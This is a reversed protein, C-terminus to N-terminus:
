ASASARYTRPTQGTWRKFARQFASQDSFGTLFAVEGLSHTQSTLLSEAAERRAAFLPM